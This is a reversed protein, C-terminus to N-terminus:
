LSNRVNYFEQRLVNGLIFIDAKFPDYPITASLEPVDQDLGLEGLVLRSSGPPLIVSMGFDIFYYKVRNPSGFRTYPWAPWLSDPLNDFQVPHFGSPYLQTGDM